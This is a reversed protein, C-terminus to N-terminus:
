DAALDNMLKVSEAIEVRWEDDSALEAEITLDVNRRLVQSGTPTCSASAVSADADVDWCSFSVDFNTINVVKDDSLPVWSGTSCVGVSAASGYTVVGSAGNHYFGRTIQAGSAVSDNYYSYLVCIDSGGPSLINFDLEGGYPSDGAGTLPWYGARRFEGIVIDSLSSIEQNLRYSNLVNVSSRLTTIFIYLVASLVILGVVLGVMLEILTYGSQKRNM